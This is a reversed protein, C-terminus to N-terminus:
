KNEISNVRAESIEKDLKKGEEQTTRIELILNKRELDEFEANNENGNKNESISHDMQSSYELRNFNSEKKFREIISLDEKSIRSKRYYNGAGDCENEEEFLLLKKVNNTNLPVELITLEDYDNAGYDEPIAMVSNPNLWFNSIIIIEDDIITYTCLESVEDQYLIDDEEDYESQGVFRLGQAYRVLKGNIKLALMTEGQEVEEFGVEVFEIKYEKGNINIKIGEKFSNSKYIEKKEQFNVNGLSYDLM